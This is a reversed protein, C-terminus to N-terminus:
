KRKSTRQKTAGNVPSYRRIALAGLVAVIIVAVGVYVDYGHFISAPRELIVSFGIWLLCVPVTYKPLKPLRMLEKGWERAILAISIAILAIGFYYKDRGVHIATILHGSPSLLTTVGLLGLAVPLALNQRQM